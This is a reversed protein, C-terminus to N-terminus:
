KYSGAETFANGKPYRIVVPGEAEAAYNMATALEHAGKPAIYTLGPMLSLYATDYIGQHTEGDEGVIGARDLCFVM